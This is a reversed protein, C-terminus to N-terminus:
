SKGVDLKLIRVSGPPPSQKKELAQPALHFEGQLRAMTASGSPSYYVLDYAVPETLAGRERPRFNRWALEILRRGERHAFICEEADLVVRCQMSRIPVFVCGTESPRYFTEETMM